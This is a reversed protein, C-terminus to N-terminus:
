RYNEGFVLLAAKLVGLIIPGIFLGAAGFLFVGGIVGIIVVAPHLNASRDVALPRVINDVLGVVLAGYLFLFIAPGPRGVLFLYISAPVWVAAAGVVPVFGAIIMIFTWFVPNPVGTLYLALGAVGAQAISVSVHGKIVAWTTQRVNGYLSEKVEESVPMLTKTWEVFEEGDRLLYYGLFMMLTFGIFLNTALDLIQSFNGFVASTFENIINNASSEIDITRGTYMLIQEEIQNTDIIDSENLDGPLDQADQLVAASVIWVPLVTLILAFIILTFASIRSGLLRRTVRHVPFLLFALLFAGLVYGLDSWSGRM